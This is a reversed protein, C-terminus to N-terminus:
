AAIREDSRVSMPLVREKDQLALEACDGCLPLWGNNEIKSGHSRVAALMVFDADGGCDCTHNRWGEKTKRQRKGKGLRRREQYPKRNMTPPKTPIKVGTPPLWQEGTLVFRSQGKERQITKVKGDAVLQRILRKVSGVSVGSLEALEMTSPSNGANHAKFWVIWEYIMRKGFKPDIVTSNGGLEPELWQSITTMPVGTVESIEAITAGKKRMDRIRDINDNYRRELETNGELSAIGMRRRWNSITCEAVGHADAIQRDSMGQDKYARLQEVTFFVKQNNNHPAKIGWARRRSLVTTWPLNFMEGIEKDSLGNAKLVAMSRKDLVKTEEM